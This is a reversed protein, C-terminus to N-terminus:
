ASLNKEVQNQSGSNSVLVAISQILVGMSLGESDKVRLLRPATQLGHRDRGAAAPCRTTGAPPAWRGPLDAREPVRVPRPGPPGGRRSARGATRKRFLDLADSHKEPDPCSMSPPPKQSSSRLAPGRRSEFGRDQVKRQLPNISSSQWANPRNTSAPAMPRPTKPGCLLALTLTLKHAASDIENPQVHPRRTGLVM